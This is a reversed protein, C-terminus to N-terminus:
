SSQITGAVALNFGATSNTTMLIGIGLGVTTSGVATSCQAIMVDGNRMGLTLGDTFYGSAQLLTTGDTSSYMWLRNGGFIPASTSGIVANNVNSFPSVGGSFFAIPPNQLTTAATSGSYPM